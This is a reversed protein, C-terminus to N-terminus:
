YLLVNGVLISNTLIIGRRWLCRVWHRRAEATLFNALSGDSGRNRIYFKLIHSLVLATWMCWHPTSSPEGPLFMVTNRLPRWGSEYYKNWLVGTTQTYENLGVWLQCSWPTQFLIWSIMWGIFFTQVTNLLDVELYFSAISPYIMPNLESMQVNHQNM